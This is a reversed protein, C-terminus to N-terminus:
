ATKKRQLRTQLDRVGFWANVAIFAILLAAIALDGTFAGPQQGEILVWLRGDVPVVGEVTQTVEFGKEFEAAQDRPLIRGRIGFPRQDPLPAPRGPMWDETPLAARRVMIPTNQLGIHVFTTDGERSYAGRTVPIGHLEAYRNPRLRDFHYDGETGLTIPTRSSFFYVVDRRMWYLGGLGILIAVLATTWRVGVRRRAVSAELARITDQREAEISSRSADGQQDSETM